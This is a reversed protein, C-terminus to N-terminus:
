LGSCGPGAAKDLSLLPKISLIFAKFLASTHAMTWRISTWLKNKRVTATIFLPHHNFLDEQGGGGFYSLFYRKQETKFDLFKLSGCCILILFYKAANILVSIFSLCRTMSQSECMSSFPFINFRKRLKMADFFSMVSWYWQM